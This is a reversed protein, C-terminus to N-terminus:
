NSLLVKGQLFEWFEHATELDRNQLGVAQYVLPVPHEISPESHGGGDVRCFEVVAGTSGPDHTACTVSSGDLPYDTNNPYTHSATASAPAQNWDLWDDRTAPASKVCGTLCGGVYPIVTDLTGNMIMVPVPTVPAICEDNGTLSLPNNAISAAIAAIRDPLERGLRYTMMGGNSAGTAYVRGTDIDYHTDAWDVLAAAFAVDDSAVTSTSANERCDNWHQKNTTQTQEQCYGSNLLCRVNNVPRTGNPALILVGAEAAVGLWESPTTSGKWTVTGGDIEKDGVNIVTNYSQSGGHHVIVVPADAPLGPPEYVHFLRTLQQGGEGTVSISEGHTLTGGYKDEVACKMQDGEDQPNQCDVQAVAPWVLGLTMGLASAVPIFGHSIREFRM